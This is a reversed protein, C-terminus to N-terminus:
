PTTDQIAIVHVVCDKSAAESLFINVTDVTIPNTMLTSKLLDIYFLPEGELINFTDDPSGGSVDNTYLNIEGLLSGDDAIVWVLLLSIETLDLNLIVETNADDASLPISLELLGEVNVAGFHLPVEVQRGDAGIYRLDFTPTLEM